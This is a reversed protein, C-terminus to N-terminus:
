KKVCTTIFTIYIYNEVFVYHCIDFVTILSIFTWFM